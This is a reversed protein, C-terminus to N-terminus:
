GRWMAASGTGGSSPSTTNTGSISTVSCPISFGSSLPKSWRPDTAFNMDAIWMPIIDFGEKPLGPGGTSEYKGVMDIVRCDMGKRQWVTTFDYKM